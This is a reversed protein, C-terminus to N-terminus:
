AAPHQREAEIAARVAPRAGIGEVYAHLVPSLERGVRAAYTRLAWFAYADLVTFHDGHLYSRAGLGHELIAVRAALRDAAWQKSEASPAAMITFPAFGKHLETAVFHIWEDFRVRAFTGHAPALGADAHTDALYRLIVGTETVVEGDALRLAPVYNKPNAAVLAERAGRLDVRVLEFAAGLERLVIHPALSCVQPAYYLTFRPTDSM